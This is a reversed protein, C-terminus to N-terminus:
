IVLLAVTGGPESTGGPEPAGALESSASQQLQVPPMEVDLPPETPFLIYYDPDIRRGFNSYGSGDSWFRRRGDALTVSMGEDDTM